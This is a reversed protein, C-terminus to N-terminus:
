KKLVVRPAAGCITGDAFKPDCIVRGTEFAWPVPCFTEYDPFLFHDAYRIEEGYGTGPVVDSLVDLRLSGWYKNVINQCIQDVKEALFIKSRAIGNTDPLEFRILRSKHKLIEKELRITGEQTADLNTEPRKNDVMETEM